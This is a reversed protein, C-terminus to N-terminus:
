DKDCMQVQKITNVFNFHACRVLTLTFSLHLAFFSLEFSDL